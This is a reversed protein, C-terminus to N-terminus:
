AYYEVVQGAGATFASSGSGSSNRAQGILETSSNLFVQRTSIYPNSNGTDYSSNSAVFSHSLDVSNISISLNSNFATSDQYSFTQISKIEGSRWSKKRAM